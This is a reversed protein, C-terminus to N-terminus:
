TVQWSPLGAAVRANWIAEMYERPFNEIPLMKPTQMYLWIWEDANNLAYTLSSEWTAPQYYNLAFNSTDWTGNFDLMKGPSFKTTGIVKGAETSLLSNGFHCQGYSFLYQANNLYNYADEYGNPLQAGSESPLVNYLGDLFAPLLAYRNTADNPIPNYYLQEYGFTLFVVIAPYQEVMAAMIAKAIEKTQAKYEDFTYTGFDPRVSAQFITSPAYQEVDLFIGRMGSEYCFKAATRFNEVVMYIEPAYWDVDGPVLQVQLLNNLLHNSRTTVEYMDQFAPRLDDFPIIYDHWMHVGISVTGLVPDPYRAKICMGDIPLANAELLAAKVQRTELPNNDLYIIKDAPM